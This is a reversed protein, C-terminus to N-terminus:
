LLERYVLTRSHYLRQPGSCYLMFMIARIYKYISSKVARLARSRNLCAEEVVARLEGSTSL